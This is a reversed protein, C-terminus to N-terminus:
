IGQQNSNELFDIKFSKNPLSDYKRKLTDAQYINQLAALATKNELAYKLDVDKEVLIEVVDSFIQNTIEENGCVFEDTQNRVSEKSEM